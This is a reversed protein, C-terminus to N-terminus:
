GRRRNRRAVVRAEVGNFRRVLSLLLVAVGMAMLPFLIDVVM